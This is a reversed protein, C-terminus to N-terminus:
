KLKVVRASNKSSEGLFTLFYLGQTLQKTNLIQHTEVKNIHEDLVVQGLADNLQISTIGQPINELLLYDAFPNPYITVDAISPATVGVPPLPCPITWENDLWDARDTM